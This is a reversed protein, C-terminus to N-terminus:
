PVRGASGATSRAAPSQTEAVVVGGGAGVGDGARTPPLVSSARKMPNCYTRTNGHAIALYIHTPGAPNLGKASLHAAALSWDASAQSQSSRVAVPPQIVVVGPLSLESVAGGSWLKTKGGALRVPTANTKLQSDTLFM